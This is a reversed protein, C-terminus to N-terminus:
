SFLFSCSILLERDTNHITHSNDKQNLIENISLHECNQICLLFVFTFAKSRNDFLILEYFIVFVVFVKFTCFINMFCYRVSKTPTIVVCLSSFSNATFLVCITSVVLWYCMCIKLEDKNMRCKETQNGVSYM